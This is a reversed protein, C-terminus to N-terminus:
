KTKKKKKTTRRKTKSDVIFQSQKKIANRNPVDTDDDGSDEDDDYVMDRQTTPLKVRTNYQPLKGEISTHFEEEEMQKTIEQLDKGDLEELLKLLKEECTSLQDLVYEDSTPPIQATPVHGKSAKLHHLKDALHEVGAKVSVMIHSNRNLNNEALSRRDDEKQLHSQFEELMREGSSLKADGTYKMEEFEMQLKEKEEKLRTIQKENDKQLAELHKTTDEQGEFRRVVEMTDSVGTAEKIRKFAEEYTTIKQQQEEGQLAQKEQPSLEDQQISGRQAIRREIREHQMKKEEAEKKMKQLEVERQKRETYVVKEHKALEQQAAEKSIHADDHMARLEKLEAKTNRIEAEMCDLISPFNGAEVELKRKIDEYIRKLHSAEDIKLKTKDYSNELYRMSQADKSEGKDTAVAESSDDVMQQYETQLKELRKQKQASQHKLANLRKMTDCVKHDMVTIAQRGSKNKMSAREVPRDQFAKNIVHQDQSLSDSLKKRVEKNEKRLKLITERNKKMAFQSTEYYAKRDGELLAIKSKLEDIQENIPRQLLGAGSPM